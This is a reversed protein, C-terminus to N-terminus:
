RYSAAPERFSGSEARRRGTVVARAGRAPVLTIHKMRVPEPEPRDARLDLESLITRLVTKMEFTAFAAGLCRRTGGGFPIWTYPEPQGDLFREPRFDRPSPWHSESRQVVGVGPMVTVGAPL